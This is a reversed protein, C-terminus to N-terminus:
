KTFLAAVGVFATIVIGFGIFAIPVAFVIWFYTWLNTWHTEAVNMSVHETLAAAILYSILLSTATRM